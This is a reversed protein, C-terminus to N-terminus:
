DCVFLDMWMLELGVCVFSTVRGICVYEFGVSVHFPCVTAILAWIVLPWRLFEMGDYKAFSPFIAM